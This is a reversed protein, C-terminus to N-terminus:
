LRAGLRLGAVNQKYDASPLNSAYDGHEFEARLFAWRNIPLELEAQFRDRKDERLAAISPTIAEYGRREHRWGLSLAADEGGVDFRQSFRVRFNDSKYDFEDSVANDIEREYGATFYSKVGNLFLYVDGGYANRKSDRLPDVDFNRDSFTYGARAYLMDGFFAAAYPNVQHMTMFPDGGLRAYAFRYAAGVEFLKFDQSVEATALHSQVDFATFDKHLSQSFGYGLEVETRLGVPITAELDADIVAAFDDAGTNQDVDNVSVNSDYEVGAAIEADFSPGDKPKEEDVGASHAPGAIAFAATSILLSRLRM